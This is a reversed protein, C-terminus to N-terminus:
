LMANPTTFLRMLTTKKRQGAGSFEPTQSAAKPLISLHGGPDTVATERVPSVASARPPM